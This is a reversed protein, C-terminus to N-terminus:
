LLPQTDFIGRGFFFFFLFFGLLAFLPECGRVWFSKKSSWSAATTISAVDERGQGNFRKSSIVQAHGPDFGSREQCGPWCLLSTAIGM